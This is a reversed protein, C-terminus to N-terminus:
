CEFILQNVPVSCHTTQRADDIRKATVVEDDPLWYISEHYFQILDMIHHYTRQDIQYHVKSFRDHAKYYAPITHHFQNNM